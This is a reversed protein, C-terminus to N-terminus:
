SLLDYGLFLAADKIIWNLLVLILMGWFYGSRLRFPPLFRQKTLRDFVLRLLIFSFLVVTYLVLPHYFFSRLPHGALLLDVARRGGCGPCYYGTFLRFLCPAGLEFYTKISDFLM